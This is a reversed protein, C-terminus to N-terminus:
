NVRGATSRYCNKYPRCSAKQTFGMKACTFKKCQKRTFRRGGTKKKMVPKRRVGTIMEGIKDTIDPPLESSHLGRVAQRKERYRPQEKLNREFKKTSELRLPFYDYLGNMIALDEPPHETNLKLNYETSGVYMPDFVAFDYGDDKILKKFTGRILPFQGHARSRGEYEVGVKLEGVSRIRRYIDAM